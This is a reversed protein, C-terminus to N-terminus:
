RASLRRAPHLMNLMTFNFSSKIIKTIEEFTLPSEDLQGDSIRERSIQEILEALHQPTM